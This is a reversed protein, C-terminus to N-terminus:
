YVPQPWPSGQAQGQNLAFRVGNGLGKEITVNTRSAVVIDSIAWGVALILFFLAWPHDAAFDWFTRM